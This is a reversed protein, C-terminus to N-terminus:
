SSAPPIPMDSQLPPPPPSAHHVLLRWGQDTRRYINTAVMPPMPPQGAAGQTVQQELIHIALDGHEIWQGHRITVGMKADSGLIYQWSEMVAKQGMIAPSMPHICTVSDDDAWVSRMRELDADEFADYFADEADQPTAYMTTM